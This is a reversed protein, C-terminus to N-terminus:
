DFYETDEPHQLEPKFHAPQDLLTLWDIGALFPHAKVEEAGNAGLRKAPDMCILGKLFSIATDSVDYDPIDPDPWDIKYNLINQFVEKQTGAHFPPYGYLFEFLICGVSWWDCTEDQGAGRITEPSLYDPTGVFRYEGDEPKFLSLDFDTLKLHGDADILLNDPKLDHHIIGRDHLAEVALIVEAIYVRAWEESLFGLVKLLAACDGGPLYEMVLFLYDRNQFTAYLKAVFPSEAQSMLIAREAKVNMVQNKAIMDSKKLMKIAYYEGTLRKKALYVSGFAGKSIPKIIDYDKIS